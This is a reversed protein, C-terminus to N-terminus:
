FFDEGFTGGGPCLMGGLNFPGNSLSRRRSLGVSSFHLDGEGLRFELKSFAGWDSTLSYAGRFHSFNKKTFNALSM